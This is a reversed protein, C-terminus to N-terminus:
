SKTARGGAIAVAAVLLWGLILGGGGLPAAMAFLRSGMLDRMALDGAFLLLGLLLVGGAFSGIRGARALAVAMLVPAHLLLFYAATTLNALGDHSAYAAAGVGTAGVLASAAWLWRNM